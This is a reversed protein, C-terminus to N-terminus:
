EKIFRDFEAEPMPRAYYYGQIYQAGSAAIAEQEAQTEVGEAVVLLGNIAAMEVISRLLAYQETKDHTEKILGQSLHSKWNVRRSQGPINPKM